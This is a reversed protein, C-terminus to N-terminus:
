GEGHVLLRVSRYCYRWDGPRGPGFGFERVPDGGNWWWVPKGLAALDTVEAAVGRPIWGGYHDLFVGYSVQERFAPWAAQWSATGPFMGDACRVEVPCGTLGAFPYREAASLEPSGYLTMPAMLYLVPLGTM